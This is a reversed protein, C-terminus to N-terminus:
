LGRSQGRDSITRVVHNALAIQNHEGSRRPYGEIQQLRNSRHDTGLSHEGVNAADLSRDHALGQTGSQSIVKRSPMRQRAGMLAPKDRGTGIAKTAAHNVDTLRTAGRTM